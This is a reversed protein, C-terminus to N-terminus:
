PQAAPAADIIVLEGERGLNLMARAREDLMDQDLNEPRLLRVRQELVARAQATEDRLAEAQKIEQSLSLWALVGRNGEVVHYAFYGLVAVGVIPALVSRIHTRSDRFIPM